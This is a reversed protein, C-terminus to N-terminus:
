NFTCLRDDAFLTRQAANAQADHAPDFAGPAPGQWMVDPVVGPGIM